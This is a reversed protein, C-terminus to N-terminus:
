RQLLLLAEHRGEALWGEDHRLVELGSATALARAEGPQLCFRASPHAHRELNTTTPQVFLALGGPALLDRLRPFLRRELFHFIVVLDQPEVVERGDLLADVDLVRTAISVGAAQAAQRARELGVPSVDACTVELGRRALWVAHRGAGGALDLARGRAPLLDALGTVLASPASAGRAPDSWREDWTARDAASM